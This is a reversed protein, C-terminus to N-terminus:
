LQRCISIFYISACMAFMNTKSSSTVGLEHNIQLIDSVGYNNNLKVFKPFV